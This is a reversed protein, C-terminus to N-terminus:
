ESRLLREIDARERAEREQVAGLPEPLRADLWARLIETLVVQRLAETEGGLARAATRTAATM